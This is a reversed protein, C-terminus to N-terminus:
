LNEFCKQPVVLHRSFILIYSEKWHFYKLLTMYGDGENGGVVTRDQLLM